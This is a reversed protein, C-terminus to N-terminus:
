AMSASKQWDNGGKGGTMGAFAPFRLLGDAHFRPNRVGDPVGALAIHWGARIRHRSRTKTLILIKLIGIRGSASKAMVQFGAKGGDNGRLRSVPTAWGRSFPSQPRWRSRGRARYALGRELAFSRKGILSSGTSDQFDQNQCFAQGQLGMLLSPVRM